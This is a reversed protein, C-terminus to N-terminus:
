YRDRFTDFVKQSMTFYFDNVTWILLLIFKRHGSGDAQAVDGDGEVHGEEGGDREEKEEEEKAPSHASPEKNTSWTLDELPEHGSPYIENYGTGERVSSSQESTAERGGSM